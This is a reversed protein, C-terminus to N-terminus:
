NKIRINEDRAVSAAGLAAITVIRWTMITNDQLIVVKTTLNGTDLGAVLM